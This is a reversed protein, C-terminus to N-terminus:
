SPVREVVYLTNADPDRLSFMAPVGPWHMVQPDVDVGRAQLDAHDADADDTELRVGTDIGVRQGEGLPPIAISASGGTPAVEIWRQGDGFPADIRQEFGLKDVYFALTRAQDTAPIAVTRVETIRTTTTTTDAM